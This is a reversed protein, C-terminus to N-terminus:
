SSISSIIIGLICCVFGLLFALRALFSLVSSANTRTRGHAPHRTGPCEHVCPYHLLPACLLFLLFSVRFLCPLVIVFVVETLSPPHQSYSCPTVTEAGTTRHELFCSQSRLHVLGTGLLLERKWWNRKLSVILLSRIKQRSVCMLSSDINVISKLTASFSIDPCIPWSLYVHASNTGSHCCFAPPM